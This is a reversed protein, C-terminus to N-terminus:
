GGGIGVGSHFGAKGAPLNIVRCLPSFNGAGDSGECLRGGEFGDSFDGGQEGDEDGYSDPHKSNLLEKAVDARNSFFESSM